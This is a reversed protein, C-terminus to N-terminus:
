RGYYDCRKMIEKIFVYWLHSARQSLTVNRLQEGLSRGDFLSARDEVQAFLSKSKVLVMYHFSKVDLAVGVKDQKCQLAIQDCENSDIQATLVRVSRPTEKHATEKM